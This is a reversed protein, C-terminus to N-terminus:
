VFLEEVKCRFEPLLDPLTLEDDAKLVQVHEPTHVHVVQLTPDILWIKNFGNAQYDSIRQSVETFTDHTSVVEVALDPAFGLAGINRDVGDLKSKLVVSVDPKRFRAPDDAFCRYSMEAYVRVRGSKNAAQLFYGIVIALNTSFESVQKERLEGDIFEVGPEHMARDYEATTLPQTAIDM